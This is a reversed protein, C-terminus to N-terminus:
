DKICRISYKQNANDDNSFDYNNSHNTYFSVPNTNDISNTWFKAGSNIEGFSTNIYYGGPLLSFGTGNSPDQNIGNDPWLDSIALLEEIKPYPNQEITIFNLLQEWEAKSPVHWDDPCVEDLTKWEYLRGYIEANADNNLYTCSGESSTYNLNEAMWWQDGIKVTNYSINDRIDIFNDTEPSVNIYNDKSTYDRGSENNTVLLVSYTGEFKYRHTPNELTSTFGDGFEWYWDNPDNKTLDTFSVLQNTYVDINDAAFNADPNLNEKECSIFMLM